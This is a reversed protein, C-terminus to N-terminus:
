CSTRQAAERKKIGDNKITNFTMVSKIRQANFADYAAKNFGLREILTHVDALRKATAM